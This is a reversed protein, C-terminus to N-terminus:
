PSCGVHPRIGVVYRADPVRVGILSPMNRTGVTRPLPFFALSPCAVSGISLFDHEVPSESVAVEVHRLDGKAGPKGIANADFSVSCRRAHM